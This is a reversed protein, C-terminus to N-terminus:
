DPRRRGAVIMKFDRPPGPLVRVQALGHSTLLQELELQTTCSGGYLAVRLRLAAGLLDDSSRAAALLLWGGPKLAQQVREVLRNLALGPVFPVPIWALDFAREDTLDEGAQARLEVRDQLGAVEINARAVALAPEWVDLGVVRISPWRRAMAIALRGVGTGVDLFAFGSDDLRPALGDLAPLLRPLANAFGETIEGGRQLISPDTHTWGAGREPQLLFHHDLDWFHRIEALIPGLDSTSTGDLASRAGAHGLLDDVQARLRPDLPTGSTRAHLEAGLAALATASASFRTVVERLAEISMNKM